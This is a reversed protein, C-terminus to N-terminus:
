NSFDIAVLEQFQLAANIDAKFVICKMYWKKFLRRPCHRGQVSPQASFMYATLLQQDLSMNITAKPQVFNPYLAGEYQVYLLHVNDVPAKYM